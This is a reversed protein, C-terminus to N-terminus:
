EAPAETPAEAPADTAAAEQQKAYVYNVFGSKVETDKTDATVDDAIENEAKYAAFEEDTYEIGMYNCYDKLTLADQFEQMTSDATIGEVTYASLFEDASMGSYDAMDSVTATGMMLKEQLKKVKSNAAIDAVPGSIAIVGLALVIVVALVMIWTIKNQGKGAM